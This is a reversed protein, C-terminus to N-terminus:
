DVGTGNTSQGFQGTGSSSVGNIAPGSTADVRLTAATGSGILRLLASGAPNGTLASQADVTNTKGLNFVSGVGSGASATTSVLLAGVAIAALLPWRVILLRTLM